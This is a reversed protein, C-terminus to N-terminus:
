GKSSWSEKGIKWSGGEKVITITGITPKKDPDLAEVTLTAGDGARTEKTVKVNTLAGMMKIMGFMEARDAAPTSEMQKRVDASMYPYLDEVKKAADFAKRYDLYFQTATAAQATVMAPAVLSWLMCVSLVTLLVRKM